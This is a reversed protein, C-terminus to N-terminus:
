VKPSWPTAWGESHFITPQAPLEAKLWFGKAGDERFLFQGECVLVLGQPNQHAKVFFTSHIVNGNEGTRGHRTGYFWYCGSEKPWESTWAPTERFASAAESLTAQREMEEELGDGHPASLALDILKRLLDKDINM